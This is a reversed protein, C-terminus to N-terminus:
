SNLIPCVNINVKKIMFIYSITEQLSTWLGKIVRYLNFTKLEWESDDHIKYQINDRM